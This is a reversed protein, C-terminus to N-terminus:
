AEHLHSRLAHYNLVETQIGAHTLGNLTGTVSIACTYTINFVQTELLNPFTTM